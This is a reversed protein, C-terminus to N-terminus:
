TKTNMYQKAIVSDTLMRDALDDFSQPSLNSMGYYSTLEHDYHWKPDDDEINLVHTHIRVPLM